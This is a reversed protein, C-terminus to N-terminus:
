SGIAQDVQRYLKTMLRLYTKYQADNKVQEGIEMDMNVDNGNSDVPTNMPQFVQPKADELDGDQLAKNLLDQFQVDARRFGPTQANMINNAITSQRLSAAKLAAELVHIADPRKVM